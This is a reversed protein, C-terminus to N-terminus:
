NSEYIIVLILIFMDYFNRKADSVDIREKNSELVEIIDSIETDIKKDPNSSLALSEFEYLIINDNTFDHCACVIKNKNNYNYTGLITKPTNFGCIM